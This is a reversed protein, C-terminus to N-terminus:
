GERLGRLLIAESAALATGSDAFFVDRADFGCNFQALRSELADANKAHILSFGCVGDRRLLSNIREWDFRNPGDCGM